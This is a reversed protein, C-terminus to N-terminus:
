QPRVPLSVKLLHGEPEHLDVPLPNPTAAIAENGAQDRVRLRLYVNVPMQEPLKWSHRGTNPLDLAIAHWPGGREEAWELTVPTATLNKDSARWTLLLHGPSSDRTPPYLDAEPRTTDLEIRLEPVEGRQPPQRGINARNKIVLTFGYIGDRDNQTFQVMRQLRAGRTANAVDADYAYKEWTEGDDRTRYLEVSGLGSPGLKSVEYEVMFEPQNLYQLAPLKKGSTLAKAKPEPSPPQAASAPAPPAPPAASWKSSAIVQRDEVPPTVVPPAGGVSPPTMQRSPEPGGLPTPSVPSPGSPGPVVPSPLTNGSGHGPDSAQATKLPNVPPPVPDIPLPTGATNPPNVSPPSAPPPASPGSPSTPVTLEKGLELAGGPSQMAVAAQTAGGNGMPNFSATTVTDAPVEMIRYSQNGALDRLMIRVQLAQGSGPQFRAQGNPVAPAAIATWLSPADKVQYELRFSNADGNDEQIEWNVLVENGQRRADLTKMVPKVTDIVLRQDPPGVQPNEPQQKGHQDVAAVRLWYVGDGPARFTFADQDPRIKDILNWERGQNSSAYLRLESIENRQVKFQVPIRHALQNTYVVDSPVQGLISLCAWVLTAAAM